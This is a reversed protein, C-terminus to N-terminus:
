TGRLGLVDIMDYRGAVYIPWKLSIMWLAALPLLLWALLWVKRWRMRGQGLAADGRPILAVVALLGAAPVRCATEAQDIVHDARAGVKLLM